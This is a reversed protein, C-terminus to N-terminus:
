CKPTNNANGQRALDLRHLRVPADEGLHAEFIFRAKQIPGRGHPRDLAERLPKDKTTSSVDHRENPAAWFIDSGTDGNCRNSRKKSRTQPLLAARRWPM